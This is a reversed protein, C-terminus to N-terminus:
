DASLASKGICKINIDECLEGRLHSTREYVGYVTLVTKDIVLTVKNSKKVFHRSLSVTHGRGANVTRVGARGSNRIGHSFISERQRNEQRAVGTRGTISRTM